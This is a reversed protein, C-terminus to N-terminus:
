SDYVRIVLGIRDSRHVCTWHQSRSEHIIIFSVVGHQVQGVQSRSNVSSCINTSSHTGLM